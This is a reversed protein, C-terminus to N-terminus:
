TIYTHLYMNASVNVDRPSVGLTIDRLDGFGLSQLMAKSHKVKLQLALDVFSSISPHPASLTSTNFMQDYIARPISPPPDPTSVPNSVVSVVHPTFPIWMYRVHRFTKLRNNHATEITQTTFMQTTEKLKHQPICKLTLESVVGLSGLGVKAMKFLYPNKSDSLTLLGESPTIIKMEVIQEEVTSLLCGTGHAAVQTWGAMQQEQISSFNELTLGVSSLEKLIKSVTTGGGCTVLMKEKNISVANFNHVSVANEKNRPMGIGNPSLLTGVPRIKQRSDSYYKLLRILELESKPEYFKSVGCNHTASWNTVNQESEFEVGCKADFDALAVTSGSFFVGVSARLAIRATTNAM